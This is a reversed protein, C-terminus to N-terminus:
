NFVCDIMNCLQPQSQHGVSGFPVGSTSLVHGLDSGSCNSAFNHVLIIPWFLGGQFRACIQVEITPRLSDMYGSQLLIGLTLSARASVTHTFCAQGSCFNVKISLLKVTICTCHYLGLFRGCTVFLVQM